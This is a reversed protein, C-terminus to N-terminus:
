STLDYDCSIFHVIHLYDLLWIIGVISLALLFCIEPAFKWNIQKSSNVFTKGLNIKCFNSFITLIATNMYFFWLLKSLRNESYFPVSSQWFIIQSVAQYGWACHAIGSFDLCPPNLIHFERLYWLYLMHFKWPDIFFLISNGLTGLFFYHLIELPRKKPRPIKLAELMIKHFIGSNRQKTQFKWPLSLTFIHFIGRPNGFFYIRLRGGGNPNKRSYGLIYTYILKVQM